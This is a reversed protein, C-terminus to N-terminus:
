SLSQECGIGEPLPLTMKDLPVAGTLWSGEQPPCLDWLISTACTSNSSTVFFSSVVPYTTVSKFRVLPSPSIFSM